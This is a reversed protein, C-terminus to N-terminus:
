IPSASPSVMGTWELPCRCTYHDGEDLCKGGNQCQNDSCKGRSMSGEQGTNSLHGNFDESQLLDNRFCNLYWFLDIGASVHCRPLGAAILNIVGM